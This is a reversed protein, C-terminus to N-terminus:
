LKKLDPTIVAALCCLTELRVGSVAFACGASLVTLFGKKKIWRADKRIKYCGKGYDTANSVFHISYILFM